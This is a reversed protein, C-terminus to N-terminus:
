YKWDHDSYFRQSIAETRNRIALIEDATLHSKWASVNKASNRYLCHIQDAPADVPNNRHTMNLIKAEMASTLTLGFHETIGRFENLPSKSVKEHTVVRFNPYRRRFELVATAMVKWSLIAHDVLSGPRKVFDRIETDLTPLLDQMLNPQELLDELR